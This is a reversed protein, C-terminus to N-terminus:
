PGARPRSSGVDAADAALNRYNIGTLARTTGDYTVVVLEQNIADVIYVASSQINNTGGAVMAYAGRSRGQANVAPSLTVAALILVLVANVALLARMSGARHSAPVKSETM